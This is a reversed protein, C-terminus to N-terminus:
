GTEKPGASKGRVPRKAEAHGAARDLRWVATGGALEAELIEFVGLAGPAAIWCCTGDARDRLCGKWVGDQAFLLLTSTTRPQSRDGEFCTATLHEFLEPFRERFDPDDAARIEANDHKKDRKKMHAGLSLQNIVSWWDDLRTWWAPCWAALEVLSGGGWPVHRLFVATDKGVIWRWGWLSPSRRDSGSRCKRGM